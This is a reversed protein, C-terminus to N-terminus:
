AADKNINFPIRVEVRTGTKDPEEIDTVHVDLDMNHLENILNVRGEINKMGTSKTMRQNMTKLLHSQKRGIGNDQVIVVITGKDEKFEVNLFGKDEKYRLGHWIANEIYPQILMPPIMIAESDVNMDVNFAYDFKDSFRLHELDLYLKLINLESSLPVFDHKSNELVARM